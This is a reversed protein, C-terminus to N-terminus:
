LAEGGAEFLAQYTNQVPPLGFPIFSFAVRYIELIGPLFPLMTFGGMSALVVALWLAHAFVLAAALLLALAIAGRILRGTRCINCTLSM